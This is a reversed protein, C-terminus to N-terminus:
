GHPVGPLGPIEFFTYELRFSAYDGNIGIRLSMWRQQDGVMFAIPEVPGWGLMPPPINRFRVVALNPEVGDPNLMISDAEGDVKQVIVRVCFTETLWLNVPMMHLSNVIGATTVVFPGSTIRM